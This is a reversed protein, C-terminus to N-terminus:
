ALPKNTACVGIRQRRLTLRIVFTCRRTKFQFLAAVPRNAKSRVDPLGAVALVFCGFYLRNRLKSLALRSLRLWAWLTRPTLPM